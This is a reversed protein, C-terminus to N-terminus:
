SGQGDPRRSDTDEDKQILNSINIKIEATLCGNNFHYGYSNEPHRFVNHVINYIKVIGSHGEGRSKGSSLKADIEQKNITTDELTKKVDEPDIENSVNITLWDDEEFISIRCKGNRNKGKNYDLVNNLLNHFLDNFRSLYKGNYVNEAHIESEAEIKYQNIRNITDICTQLSLELNFESALENRRNFWRSVAQMDNQFQTKANAITAKFQQSGKKNSPILQLIDYELSDMRKQVSLSYFDLQEKMLQLNFETLSWLSDFILNVAVDFNSNEVSKQTLYITRDLLSDRYDFCSELNDNYDETRVQILNDKIISIVSDLYTTFGLLLEQCKEKKEDSLQFISESWYEDPTYKNDTGINTVINKDLFNTRIQNSLFGHRIRTSLHYDLGYKPDLLFKNRVALYFQKFLSDKYYVEQYNKTTDIYVVKHEGKSKMDALISAVTEKLMYLRDYAELTKVTDGTHAYLVYLDRLDSVERELLADTDVFIKSQDLTKTLGKITKENDLLVLENYYEKDGTATYLNQFIKIREDLAQISNKFRLGDLQLVDTDIVETLFYMLYKDSTDVPLESAKSVGRQKLYRRYALKRKSSISNTITHFISMVLPINLSREVGDEDLRRKIEKIDVQIRIFQDIMKQEVYISIAEALKDQKLMEEIMFAVLPGKIYTPFSNNHLGQLAQEMDEESMRKGLLQLNFFNGGCMPSLEKKKLGISNLYNNAYEERENGEYFVADDFDPYATYRWSDKYINQIKHYHRSEVMEGLQRFCVFSHLANYINSLRSYNLLHNGGYKMYKYYYTAVKGFLTDEVIVCPLRKGSRILSKVLVDLIKFDSSLQKLYTLSQSIVDEDRSEFFAKLILNRDSNQDDFKWKQTILSVSKNLIPDHLVSSLNELHIAVESDKEINPSCRVLLHIFSVYLDIISSNFDRYVWRGEDAYGKYPFCHAVLYNLANEDLSKFENYAQDVSSAFSIDISSTKYNWFLIFNFDKIQKSLQSLQANCANLGESLRTIKITNIASWLSFSIENNIKDLLTKAEQYEGRLVNIEYQDRYSAYKSLIDANKEFIYVLLDIYDIPSERNILYGTTLVNSYDKRRLYPLKLLGRHVIPLKLEFAKMDNYTAVEMLSNICLVPNFKRENIERVYKNLEKNTMEKM